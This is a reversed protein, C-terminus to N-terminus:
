YREEGWDSYYKYASFIQIKLWAQQNQTLRIGLFLPSVPLFIAKVKM